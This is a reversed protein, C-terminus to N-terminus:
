MLGSSMSSALGLADASSAPDLQLLHSAAAAAAIPGVIGTAHFGRAHFNRGAIKGLRAAVEYGVVIATALQAFSADLQEALGLAASVVVSGPHVVSEPFTDDFDRAHALTGHVLAVIAPHARAGNIVITATGVGEWADAWQLMSQGVPEAAAAAILGLTDLLRLRVLKIQEAPIDAPQVGSAWGALDELPTMPRVLSEASAHSGGRGIRIE